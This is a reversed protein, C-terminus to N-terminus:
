PATQVAAFMGRWVPLFGTIQMTISDTYAQAGFVNPHVSSAIRCKVDDLAPDPIGDCTSWRSDFVEDKNVWHAPNEPNTGPATNPHPIAWVWSQPARYVNM